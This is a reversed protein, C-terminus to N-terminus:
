QALLEGAGFEADADFLALLHVAALDDAERQFRYCPGGRLRSRACISERVIVQEPSVAPRVDPRAGDSSNVPEYLNPAVSHPDASRLAGHVKRMSHSGKPPKIDPRNAAWFVVGILIVLGLTAVIVTVIMGTITGDLQTPSTYMTPTPTM